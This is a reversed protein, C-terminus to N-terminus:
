SSHFVRSAHFTVPGPRVSAPSPFFRPVSDTRQADSFSDASAPVAAGFMALAFLAPALLRLSPM